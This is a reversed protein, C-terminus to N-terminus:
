VPRTYFKLWKVKLKLKKNYNISNRSFHQGIKLIINKQIEFYKYLQNKPLTFFDMETFFFMRVVTLTRM